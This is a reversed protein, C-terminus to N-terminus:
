RLTCEVVRRIAHGFLIHIQRVFRECMDNRSSIFQISIPIEYVCESVRSVVVALWRRM